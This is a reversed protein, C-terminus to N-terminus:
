KLLQSVTDITNASPLEVKGQVVGKVGQRNAKYHVTNGHLINLRYDDLSILYRMGSTGTALTEAGWYGTVITSLGKKARVNLLDALTSASIQTLRASVDLICLHANIYDIYEPKYGADDIFTTLENITIYPVTSIKKKLAIRQLTYVWLNIDVLAPSHIYYSYMPLEGYLLDDRIKNCITVLEDIDSGRFAGGQSRIVDDSYKISRYVEPIKLTDYANPEVIQEEITKNKAENVASLCKPCNIWQGTLRDIIKGRGGCCNCLM